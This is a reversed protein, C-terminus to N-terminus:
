GLANVMFRMLAMFDRREKASFGDAMFDGRGQGFDPQAKVRKVVDHNWPV